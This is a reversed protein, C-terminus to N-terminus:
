VGLDTKISSLKPLYIKVGAKMDYVPDQIVAPNRAAFVWWLEVTQYLDYSLLDPRHEYTKVITYLIDDAHATISRFNIVDLHGYTQNTTFYPSLNSYNAM